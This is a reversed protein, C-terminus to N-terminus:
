LHLAALQWPKEAGYLKEEAKAWDHWHPVYLEGDRALARKKREAADLELWVGVAGPASVSDRTLAGCGEVTWDKTPDPRLWNGWDDAYWDWLHVQTIRGHLLDACTHAAQQLGDWGPCWQEVALLELEETEQSLQQALSTKGSGSRGDILLRLPADGALTKAKTLLQNM